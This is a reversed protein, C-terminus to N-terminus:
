NSTAAGHIIIGPRDPNQQHIIVNGSNGTQQQTSSGQIPDVQTPPVQVPPVQTPPDVQVPPNVQTPPCTAPTCPECAEEATIIEVGLTQSQNYSERSWPRRTQEELIRSTFYTSPHEQRFNSRQKNTIEVHNPYNVESVIHFKTYKFEFHKKEPFNEPFLSVIVHCAIFEGYNEQLKHTQLSVDLDYADAPIGRSELSQRATIKGENCWNTLEQMKEDRQKKRKFDHTYFGSLSLELDYQDLTLNEFPFKLDESSFVNLSFLLVLSFISIKKM